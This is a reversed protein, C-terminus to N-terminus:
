SVSSLSLWCCFEAGKENSSLSWSNFDDSFSSNAFSLFAFFADDSTVKSGRRDGGLRPTAAEGAGLRGEVLTIVCLFFFSAM